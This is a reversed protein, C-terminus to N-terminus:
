GIRSDSILESLKCRSVVVGSREPPLVLKLYPVGLHLDSGEIIQPKMANRQVLKPKGGACKGIFVFRYHDVIRNVFRVGNGAGSRSASRMSANKRSRVPSVAAGIQRQAVESFTSYELMSFAIIPM